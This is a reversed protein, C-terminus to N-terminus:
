VSLNQKYKNVYNDFLSSNLLVCNIEFFVVIIASQRLQLLQFSCQGVLNQKLKENEARGSRVLFPIKLIYVLRPTLLTTCKQLSVETYMVLM